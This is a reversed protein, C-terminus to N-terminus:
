SGITHGGCVSTGAFVVTEGAARVMVPQRVSSRTRPVTRMAPRAAQALHRSVSDFEL